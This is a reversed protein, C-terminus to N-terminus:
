TPESARESAARARTGRVSKAVRARDIELAAGLQGLARSLEPMGKVKALEPEAVNMSANVVLAAAARLGMVKQKRM